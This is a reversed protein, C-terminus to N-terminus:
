PSGWHAPKAPPRAGEGVRRVAGEPVGPAGGLFFLRYGRKAAHECLAPVLDSGTVREPLRTKRWRSAWVLPMGDAVIFAAKDNAAVLQENAATLMAYHLNATILFNPKGAAILADIRDLTQGFTVPLLPLGWVHVPQTDAAPPTTM